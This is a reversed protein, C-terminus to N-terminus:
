KISSFILTSVGYEYVRLRRGCWRINDNSQSVALGHLRKAGDSRSFEDQIRRHVCILMGGAPFCFAVLIFVYAQPWNDLMSTCLNLLPHSNVAKASKVIFNSTGASCSFAFLIFAIELRFRSDDKLQKLFPKGVHLSAETHRCCIMDDVIFNWSLITWCLGASQMLLAMINIIGTLLCVDISRLSLRFVHLLWVPLSRDMHTWIVFPLIWALTTYPTILRPLTAVAFSFNCLFLGQHSTESGTMKYWNIYLVYIARLFVCLWIHHITIDIIRLSQYSM